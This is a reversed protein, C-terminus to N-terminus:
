EIGDCRCVRFLGGESPSVIFKRKLNRNNEQFLELIDVIDNWPLENIGVFSAFKLRNAYYNLNMCFVVELFYAPGLKLSYVANLKEFM